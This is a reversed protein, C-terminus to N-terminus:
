QGTGVVIVIIDTAIKKWFLEEGQIKRLDESVKSKVVLLTQPHGGLRPKIQDRHFTCDATM